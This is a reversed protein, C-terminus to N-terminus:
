RDNRAMMAFFPPAEPDLPTTAAQLQAALAAATRAPLGCQRALAAERIDLLLRVWTSVNPQSMAFLQGHV